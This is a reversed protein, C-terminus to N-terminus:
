RGGRLITENYGSGAALTARIPHRPFRIAARNPRPKVGCDRRPFPETVHEALNPEGSKLM